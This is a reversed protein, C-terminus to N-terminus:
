GKMLLELYTAPNQKVKHAVKAHSGLTAMSARGLMAIADRGQDFTRSM